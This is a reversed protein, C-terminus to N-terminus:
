LAAIRIDLLSYVQCSIEQAKGYPKILATSPVESKLNSSQIHLSNAIVSLGRASRLRVTTSEACSFCVYRERSSRTFVQMLPLKIAFEVILWSENLVNGKSSLRKM